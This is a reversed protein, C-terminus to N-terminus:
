FAIQGKAKWGALEGVTRLGPGEMVCTHGLRRWTVAGKGIVRLRTGEVEIDRGAPEALQEGAVISYSVRAGGRVYSVTTVHRGDIEDERKGVARWGFKERYDPFHVGEVEVPLLAGGSPSVAAAPARGAAALVGEVTPPGGSTALVLAVVAAAAVGALAILPRWRLRRWGRSGGLAGVRQRLDFPAEVSGAAARLQDRGARILEIRRALEPRAELEAARSRDLEGDALLALEADLHADDEV